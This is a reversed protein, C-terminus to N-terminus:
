NLLIKVGSILIIIGLANKLWKPDKTVVYRAGVVGGILSGIALVAALQANFHGNIVYVVTAVFTGVLWVAMGTASAKNLKMGFFVVMLNIVIAGGGAGFMVAYLMAFFIAVLGIIKHNKDRKKEKVGYNKFILMWIALVLLTLGIVSIIIDPNIKPLLIPGIIGAIASPIALKVVTKWRINGAKNYTYLSAIGGFLSGIRTTGIVSVPPYGLFLLYPITIIGGGSSISGLIGAAVGIAFM